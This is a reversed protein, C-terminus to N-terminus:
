QERTMRELGVFTNFIDVHNSELVPVIFIGGSSEDAALALLLNEFSIRFRHKCLIHFCIRMLLGLEKTTASVSIINGSISNKEESIQAVNESLKQVTGERVRYITGLGLSFPQVNDFFCTLNTNSTIKNLLKTQIFSKSLFSQPGVQLLKPNGACIHIYWLVHNNNNNNNIRTSTTSEKNRNNSTTSQSNPDANLNPNPNPNPSNPEEEKEPPLDQTLWTLGTAVDTTKVINTEVIRRLEFHLKNQLIDSLHSITVSDVGIAVILARKLVNRKTVLFDSSVPYVSFKNSKKERGDEAKRKQIACWLCSEGHFLVSKPDYFHSLSRTVDTIFSM